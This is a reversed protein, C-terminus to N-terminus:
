PISIPRVEMLQTREAVYAPLLALAADADTAEVTWWLCHGGTICSGLATSHRLRSDFGKWAAFCIRCEDAEHHHYLVYTAITRHHPSRPPAAM